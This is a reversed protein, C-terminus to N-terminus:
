CLWMVCADSKSLNIENDLSDIGKFTRTCGTSIGLVFDAWFFPWSLILNRYAPIGPLNKNFDDMRGHFTILTGITKTTPSWCLMIRTTHDFCNSGSDKEVVM